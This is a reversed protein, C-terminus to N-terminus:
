PGKDIEQQEHEDGEAGTANADAHESVLRYLQDRHSAVAEANGHGPFERLFLECCRIAREYNKVEPAAYWWALYFYASDRQRWNPYEALLQEYCEIARRLNKVSSHAYCRGLFYLVTGRFTPPQALFAQDAPDESRLLNEARDIYGQPMRAQYYAWAIKYSLQTSWEDRPLEREAQELAQCFALGGRPYLAQAEWYAVQSPPYPNDPHQRIRRYNEAARATQGELQFAEAQARLLKVESPAFGRAHLEARLEAPLDLFEQYYDSPRKGRDEGPLPPLSRGGTRLYHALLAAKQLPICYAEPLWNERLAPPELRQITDRIENLDAFAQVLDQYGDPAIPVLGKLALIKSTPEIAPHETAARLWRKEAEAEGLRGSLWGAYLFADAAAQGGEVGANSAAAVLRDRWSRCADADLGADKADLYAEIVEAVSQRSAPEGPDAAPADAPLLDEWVV